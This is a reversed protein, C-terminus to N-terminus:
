PQIPKFTSIREFLAASNADNEKASLVALFKADDVLQEECKKLTDPTASQPKGDLWVPHLALETQLEQAEETVEKGLIGSVTQDHARARALAIRRLLHQGLWLGALYPRREEASAGWGNEFRKAFERDRQAPTLDLVDQALLGSNLYLVHVSKGRKELAPFDEMAWPAVLGDKWEIPPECRAIISRALDADRPRIFVGRVLPVYPLADGYEPRGLGELIRGLSQLYGEIRKALQAYRDAEQTDGRHQAVAAADLFEGRVKADGEVVYVILTPLSDDSYRSEGSLTLLLDLSKEFHEKLRASTAPNSSAEALSTLSLCRREQEAIWNLGYGPANPSWDRLRKRLANDIEPGSLGEIAEDYEERSFYLIPLTPEKALLTGIAHTPVAEVFGSDLKRLTEHKITNLLTVCGLACYVIFVSM